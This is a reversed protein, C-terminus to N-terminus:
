YESDTELKGFVMNCKKRVSAPKPGVPKCPIKLQSFTAACGLNSIEGREPWYGITPM